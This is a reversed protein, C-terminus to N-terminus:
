SISVEDIQTFHMCPPIEEISFQPTGGDLGLQSKLWAKLSNTNMDSKVTHPVDDLQDAFSGDVICQEKLLGEGGHDRLWEAM